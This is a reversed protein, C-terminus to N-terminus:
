GTRIGMFSNMPQTIGSMHPITEESKDYVAILDEGMLEKLIGAFRM